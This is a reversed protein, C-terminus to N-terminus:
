KINFVLTIGARTPGLYIKDGLQYETECGACNYRRYQMYMGGVGINFELAFRGSLTLMYGYTLGAGFANGEYRYQKEFLLPIDYTGVNYNSFFAHVGFFHGNFRECLWWRFEPRVVYHALKKNNVPDSDLNWM